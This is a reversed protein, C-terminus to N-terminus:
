ISHTEYPLMHDPVFEALGYAGDSTLSGVSLDLDSGM